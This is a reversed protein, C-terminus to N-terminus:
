ENEKEYAYAEIMRGVGDENNTYALPIAKESNILLPSANKMAFGLGAKEIMPVDNYQDGIAITESLPIGYYQAIYELATGKSNTKNCIEIFRESSTTVYYESGVARQIEEFIRQQESTKVCMLFKVPAFGQEKLFQSMTNPAVVKGKVIEHREYYALEEGGWNVFFEKPKFTQIYLGMAELKECIKVAEANPIGTEFVTEGTALDAIWGGQFCAVLGQLGLSKAYEVSSTAMRGTSLVFRGGQAIYEQIAKRSKEGITGDSRLLTGDLDSVILKYKIKQM